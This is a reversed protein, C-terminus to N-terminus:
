RLATLGEIIRRTGEDIRSHQTALNVRMFGQQGYMEGGNIWVRNDAKLREAIEDSTIPFATVDLWALYTGELHAIPLDPMAEKMRRRFTEYGDFIYRVLADLWAEGEASYAAQLAIFSFCNIDCTENINIRRDILQRLDDFPTIIYATMLGATNFAKNPANAVVWRCGAEDAIPGFPLYPRGLRPNVFECHIEDSLLIVDYRQCLQAVRTLEDHTWVRGTPNHPNCFLFLRPREAALTRELAEFDIVYTEDEPQWTLPFHVARSGNNRVSSFFCNYAPTFFIVAESPRVLAQIIASFAPVVGSTYLMWERRPTWGHRHSCWWTIADYFTAPIYNYGYVAHQARRLVADRVCPATEFDMDAVWMPLVGEPAEDWKVCDTGRRTVIKDFNYNM